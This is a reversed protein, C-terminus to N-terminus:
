VLFIVVLAETLTRSVTRLTNDVLETRDYITEMRVGEPLEARLEEVAERVGALVKSPNEGRRMAVIGEVGGTRDNLGFIGTRVAAGIEVRGVDRIFVPTGNKSAVVINELDSISRILGVGRVVLAQEGANLLSGGANQNNASVAEAVQEVSLGYKYLALPDVHIQYQKVAGGFPYVDGVGPVQLLRPTVVWDNIERLAIDDYGDGTLVYRYLEGAPTTPPALSATVGEPLEVERLKELVIQRALNQDVGWEYTLDVISLAFITRSRRAIVWPVNNLAREIPITVQQEVEEPAHGPYLTIVTTQFDSIDPYAEINLEHFAWIGVGALAISLLIVALRQRLVFDLVAM